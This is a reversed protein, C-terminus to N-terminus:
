YKLSWGKGVTEVPYGAKKWANLGDKLDVANKYGLDNLSETAL